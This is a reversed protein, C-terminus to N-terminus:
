GWRLLRDGRPKHFRLKSHSQKSLGRLIYVPKALHPRVAAGYLRAADAALEPNPEDEHFVLEFDRHIGQNDDIILIRPPFDDKGSTITSPNPRM